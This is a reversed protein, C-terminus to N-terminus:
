IAMIAKIPPHPFYGILDFDEFSMESWDKTKLTNSINLKPFPRTSRTMQEKIKDIHNKYIHCDVANYVIEKAEMGCRLALIRTLINYSILNFSIAALFYDSSRMTFYSSLYKIGNEETVYFQIYTHCMDLCMNKTQDPNLNSIYIRRSFPDTKLLHEVNKLQDFGGILSVISTDSFTQSYDANYNRWSWGYMPGMIGEDYFNLGRNDLFERSTNGQWIKVGKKELIKTDTDGRCFFLLEEIISKIPVKKTTLLPITENSIDFRLQTGLKSITGTNTRDIRETGNILIDKALDLFLHEQTKYNKFYKYFLTRYNTTQTNIINSYGILKYEESLHSMETIPFVSNKIKIETLYVTSPQLYNLRTPLNLFYNYMSGGGIIIIKPTYKKYIKELYLINIYKHLDTNKDIDIIDIHDTIKLLQTNKTLILNIRNQLVNNGFSNFTKRGMLIINKSLLSHISLNNTTLNKFNPCVDKTVSFAFCNTKNICLKNRKEYVEAILEVVGTKEKQLM